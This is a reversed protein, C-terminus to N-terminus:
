LFPWADDGEFLEGRIEEKEEETYDDNHRIENYRLMKEMLEPRLKVMKNELSKYESVVKHEELFKYFKLLSTYVDDFIEEDIDGTKFIFKHMIPKFYDRVTRIDDYFFFKSGHLGEIFDLIYNLTFLIDHRHAPTYNPDRAVELTLAEIKDRNYRKVQEDYAEMDDEEELKELDKHDTKRLLYSEWDKLRKSKRILKYAEYNNKTVDSKPDLELSKELMVKAAELNGRLMEVWGMNCYFRHNLDSLDIAKQEAEFAKDMDGLYVYCYSIYDYVNAKDGEIKMLQNYYEIAMEFRFAKELFECVDYYADILYKKSFHTKLSQFGKDMYRKGTKDKGDNISRYGLEFLAPYYEPCDSLIEKLCDIREQGVLPPHLLPMLDQARMGSYEWDAIKWADTNEIGKKVGKRNEKLGRKGRKM